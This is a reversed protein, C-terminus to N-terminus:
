GKGLATAITAAWDSIETWDRFDGDAVRVALVVAREGFGLKSRDLKGAFLRHERAHTRELLPEIKVAEEASPRPPDGLPGSSFLWVPRQALEDGHTDVLRRAPELWNGIYVASGLVVARYPSLDTVADVPLVDVEIGNEQLTRAIAEAIEFTAGHRSAATVLVTTPRSGVPDAYGSFPAPIM